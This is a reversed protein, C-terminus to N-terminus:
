YQVEIGEVLMENGSLLTLEASGCHACADGQPGIFQMRDLASEGGCAGCKLRIPLTLLVVKAGASLTDRSFRDYYYQVWSESFDRLGGVVIHVKLVKAANQQRAYKNVVDVIAPVVALEHMM